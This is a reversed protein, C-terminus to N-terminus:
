SPNQITNQTATHAQSVDEIVDNLEEHSDNDASMGYEMDLNMNGVVKQFKLRMLVQKAWWDWASLIMRQNTPLAHWETYKLQFVSTTLIVALLM